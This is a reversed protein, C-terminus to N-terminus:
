RRRTAAPLEAGGQQARCRHVVLASAGVRARTCAQTCCAAALLWHVTEHLRGAACPSQAGHAHCEHGARLISRQPMAGLGQGTAHVATPCVHAAAKAADKRTARSSKMGHCCCQAWRPRRNRPQQAPASLMCGRPQATSRCTQATTQTNCANPHAACVQPPPSFRENSDICRCLHRTSLHLVCRQM